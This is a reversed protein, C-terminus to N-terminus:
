CRVEYQACRKAHAVDQGEGFYIKAGRVLSVASLPMVRLPGHESGKM